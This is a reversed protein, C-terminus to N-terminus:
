CAEKRAGGKASEFREPTAKRNTVKGIADEIFKTAAECSNGSYGKAHITVDGMNTVTVIIEAM